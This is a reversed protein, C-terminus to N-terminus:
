QNARRPSPAVGIRGPAVFKPKELVTAALDCSSLANFVPGLGMYFYLRNRALDTGTGGGVPFGTYTHSLAASEQVAGELEGSGRLIM